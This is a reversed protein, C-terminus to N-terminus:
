GGPGLNSDKLRLGRDPTASRSERQVSLSELGQKRRPKLTPRSIHGPDESQTSPALGANDIAPRTTIRHPQRRANSKKITTATHARRHADSSANGSARTRRARSRTTDLPIPDDHKSARLQALSRARAHWRFALSTLLAAGGFFLRRVTDITMRKRAVALRPKPRTGIEGTAAQVSARRAAKRRTNAFRLAVFKYSSHTATYDSTTIGM